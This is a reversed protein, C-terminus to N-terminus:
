NQKLEPINNLYRKTFSTVGNTNLHDMDSYLSPNKVANSFDYFNISKEKKYKSLLNKLKSMGPQNDIQTPPIIFVLKMNNKKAIETIEDLIATYRDFTSENMKDPYLEKLRNNIDTNSSKWIRYDNVDKKPNKIFWKLSLYTKIYDLNTVYSIHNNISNRLFHANLEGYPLM